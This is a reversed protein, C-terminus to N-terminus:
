PSQFEVVWGKVHSVLWQAMAVAEEYSYVYHLFIDSKVHLVSNYKELGWQKTWNTIQTAYEVYKNTKKVILIKSNDM